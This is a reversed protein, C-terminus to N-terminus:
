SLEERAVRLQCLLPNAARRPVLEKAYREAQQRPLGFRDCLWEALEPGSRHCAAAAVAEAPALLEYALRDAREEADDVRCRRSNPTRDLLHVHYAIDAHGLLGHVRESATAPRQGDLVELSDRGAKRVARARPALYDTLFHALEHALTFRREDDADAADIFAFGHGYRAVLCGRLCRDIADVRCDIANEHLWKRISAISPRHLPVVTLPVAAAIPQRLNRPFPEPEGVMAWFEAASQVVWIPVNM